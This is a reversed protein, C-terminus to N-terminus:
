AAAVRRPVVEHRWRLYAAWSTGHLLLVCGCVNFEGAGGGGNVAAGERKM